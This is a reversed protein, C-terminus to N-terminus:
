LIITPLCFLLRLYICHFELLAFLLALRRHNLDEGV